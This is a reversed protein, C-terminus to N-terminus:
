PCPSTRALDRCRRLIRSERLFPGGVRQRGEVQLGDYGVMVSGIIAEDDTVVLFGWPSDDMKRQIDRQANNNPHILDAALWLALVSPTDADTFRRVNM